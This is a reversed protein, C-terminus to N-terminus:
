ITLGKRMLFGNQSFSMKVLHSCKERGPFFKWGGSFFDGLFEYVAIERNYKQVTLRFVIALFSGFVLIELELM